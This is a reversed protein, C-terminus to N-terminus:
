ENTNAGRIIKYWYIFRTFPVWCYTFSPKDDVKILEYIEKNLKAQLIWWAIIFWISCTWAAIISVIVNAIVLGKPKRESNFYVTVPHLFPVFSWQYNELYLNKYALARWIHFLVWFPILFPRIDELFIKILTVVVVM